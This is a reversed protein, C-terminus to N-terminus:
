ALDRPAAVERTGAAFERIMTDIEDDSAASLGIAQQFRITMILFVIFATYEVVGRPGLRRDMQDWLDDTMSGSEVARIFRTLLKEDDTLRDEEGFRMAEVAEIRVGRALADPVHGRMVVNTGWDRCLVQDVWERDAHAFTGEFDGRTRFIRSLRALGHAIPPSVLLARYYRDPKGDRRKLVWDYEELEAEPIESREPQQPPRPM